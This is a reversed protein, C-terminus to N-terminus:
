WIVLLIQETHELCSTEGFYIGWGAENGFKLKWYKCINLGEFHWEPVM